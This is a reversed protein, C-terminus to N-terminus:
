GGALRVPRCVPSGGACIPPSLPIGLIMRGRRPFPTPAPPVTPRPDNVSPTSFCNFLVFSFLTTNSFLTALNSPDLTLFHTFIARQSNSGQM